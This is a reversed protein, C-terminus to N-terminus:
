DPTEQFKTTWLDVVLKALKKRVSSEPSLVRFVIDGACWCIIGCSWLPRQHDLDRPRSFKFHQIKSRLSSLNLQIPGILNGTIGFLFMLPLLIRIIIWLHILGFFHLLDEGRRVHIKHGRCNKMFWPIFTVRFNVKCPDM